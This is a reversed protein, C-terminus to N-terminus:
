DDSDSRESYKKNEYFGYKCDNMNQCNCIDYQWPLYDFCCTGDKEAYICDTM